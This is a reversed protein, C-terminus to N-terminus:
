LIALVSTLQKPIEGTSVLDHLVIMDQRWKAVIFALNSLLGTLLVVFGRNAIM